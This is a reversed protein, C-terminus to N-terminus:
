RYNLQINKIKKEITEDNLSSNSIKFFDIVVRKTWMIKYIKSYFFKKNM